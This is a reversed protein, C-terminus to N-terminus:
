APLRRYNPLADKSLYSTLWVHVIIFSLDAHKSDYVSVLSIRVLAALMDFMELETYLGKPNEKTKLPVGM